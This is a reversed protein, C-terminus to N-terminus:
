ALGGRVRWYLDPPDVHVYSWVGYVLNVRVLVHDSNYSDCCEVWAGGVKQM